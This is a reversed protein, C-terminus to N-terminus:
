CASGRCASRAHPRDRRRGSGYGRITTQLTLMKTVCYNSGRIGSLNKEYALFNQRNIRVFEELSELHTLGMAASLENMKGNTGISIVRDYGAFGFNKMLQMREALDDDDTAVAGGEGTSIFKTAHFSLVEARWVSRDQM